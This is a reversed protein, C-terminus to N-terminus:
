ERYVGITATNRKADAGHHRCIFECSVLFSCRVNITKGTIAMTTETPHTEAEPACGSTEGIAFFVVVVTLLFGGVVVLGGFPVDPKGVASETQCSNSLRSLLWRTVVAGQKLM